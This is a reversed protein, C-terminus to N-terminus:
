LIPIDKGHEPTITQNAQIRRATARDLAAGKYLLPFLRHFKRDFERAREETHEARKLYAAALIVRKEDDPLACELLFALTHEPKGTDAYMRAQASPEDGQTAAERAIARFVDKALPGYQRGFDSTEDPQDAM